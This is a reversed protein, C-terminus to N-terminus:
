GEGGRDQHHAYQLKKAWAAAIEVESPPAGLHRALPGLVAGFDIIERRLLERNTVQPMDPHHNDYGHRLVKGIVQIVEAAEEALMALLEAQAPTLNNFHQTM